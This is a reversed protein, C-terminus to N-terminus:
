ATEYPNAIGMRALIRIECAEMIDAEEAVEHDFGLLHLTGHVALHTLHDKLRKGQEDAERAVTEYALIIDGLQRVGTLVTGDPFSLVNTPKDKGRYARNLTRVQADDALVLTLAVKRLRQSALAAEVARLVTPRLGKWRTDHVLITIEPKSTM